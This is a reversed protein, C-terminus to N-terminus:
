KMKPKGIDFTKHRIEELLLDLKMENDPEIIKMVEDTIDDVLSKFWVSYKMKTIYPKLYLVWGETERFMGDDSRKVIVLNAESLSLVEGHWCLMVNNILTDNVKGQLFGIVSDEVTNRIIQRM